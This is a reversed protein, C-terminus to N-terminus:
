VSRVFAVSGHRHLDVCQQSTTGEKAPFPSLQQKQDGGCVVALKRLVM